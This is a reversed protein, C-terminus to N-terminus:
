LIKQGREAAHLSLKASCTISNQLDRAELFYFLKDSYFLIFLKDLIFIYFIFYFYFLIFLLM